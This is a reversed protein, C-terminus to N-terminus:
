PVAAAASATVILPRYSLREPNLKRTIFVGAMVYTCNGFVTDAINYPAANQPGPEVDAFGQAEGWETWEIGDMSMRALLGDPPFNFGVSGLSIFRGGAFRPPAGIIGIPTQPTFEIGDSSTWLAQGQGNAVFVGNGFEMFVGGPPAIGDILEWDEGNDSGFVGGGGNTSAVFRGNGFSVDLYSFLGDGTTRPTLTEFDTTSRMDGSGGVMVTTTENTDFEGFV